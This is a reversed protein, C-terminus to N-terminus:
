RVGSREEAQGTASLAAKAAVAHVRAAILCLRLLVLFVPYWGRCAMWGPRHLERSQRGCRARGM